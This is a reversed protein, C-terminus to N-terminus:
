KKESLATLSKAILPHSLLIFGNAESAKLTNQFKAEDVHGKPEAILMKGKKKLVHAVESFLISQDPVEHLVAFTLVFDIQEKLDSIDLSGQSCQRLEMRDFVKNKRAKKELVELMKKQLDVCTVKGAAGVMKTMPISFFGMASGIDLIKMGEKVYPQLITCPNQFLKRIPSALLYGMWVPCVHEAMINGMKNNILGNFIFIIKNRNIEFLLILISIIGLKFVIKEAPHMKLYHM